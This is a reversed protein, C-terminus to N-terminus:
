HDPRYGSVNDTDDGGNVVLPVDLDGDNVVLPVDLNGDNSVLPMGLDPAPDEAM